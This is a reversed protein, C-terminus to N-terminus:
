QGNLKRKQLLLQSVDLGTHDFIKLQLTIPRITIAVVLSTQGLKQIPVVLSNMKEPLLKTISPDIPFDDLNPLMPVGTEDSIFELLQSEEVAGCEVLAAALSLNGGTLQEASHLQQM